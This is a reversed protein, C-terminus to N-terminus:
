RRAGRSFCGACPSRCPMRPPGARGSSPATDASVLAAFRRKDDADLPRTSTLLYRRSQELRVVQLCRRRRRDSSTLIPRGFSPSSNARRKGPVGM